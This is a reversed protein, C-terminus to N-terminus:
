RSIYSKQKKNAERIRLMEDNKWSDSYNGSSDTTKIWGIFPSFIHALTYKGCPLPYPICNGAKDNTLDSSSSETYSSYFRDKQIDSEEFVPDLSYNADATDEVDVFEFDELVDFLVLLGMINTDEKSKLSYGWVLEMVGDNGKLFYNTMVGAYHLSDSSVGSTSHTAKVSTWFGGTDGYFSIIERAVEEPLDNTENFPLRPNTCGKLYKSQAANTCSNFSGSFDYPVLIKNEGAVYAINGDVSIKNGINGIAVLNIPVKQQKIYNMIVMIAIVILAISIIACEIYIIAKRKSM